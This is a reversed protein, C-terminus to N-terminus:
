AIERKWRGRGIDANFLRGHEVCEELQCAHEDARQAIYM